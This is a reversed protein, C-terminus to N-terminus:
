TPCRTKEQITIPRPGYAGEGKLWEGGRRPAAIIAFSGPAAGHSTAAMKAERESDFSRNDLIRRSWPDANGVPTGPEVEPGTLWRGDERRM